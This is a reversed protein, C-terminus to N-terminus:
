PMQESNEARVSFKGFCNNDLYEGRPHEYQNPKMEIFGLGNVDHIWTLADIDITMSGKHYWIFFGLRSHSTGLSINRPSM